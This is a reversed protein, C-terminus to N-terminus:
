IGEPFFLQKLQERQFSCSNQFGSELAPRLSLSYAFQELVFDGVVVPNAKVNYVFSAQHAQVQSRHPLALLVRWFVKPLPM